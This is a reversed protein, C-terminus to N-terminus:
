NGEYRGGDLFFIIGYGERKRMKLIALINEEM